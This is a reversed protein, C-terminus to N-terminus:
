KRRWTRIRKGGRSRITGSPHKGVKGRPKGNSINASPNRITRVRGGGKRAEVEFPLILAVTLATLTLIM